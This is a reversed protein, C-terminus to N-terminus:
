FTCRLISFVFSLQFCRFDPFALCHLVYKGSTARNETLLLTRVLRENNNDLHVAATNISESSSDSAYEDDENVEWLSNDGVNGDEQVHFSCNM